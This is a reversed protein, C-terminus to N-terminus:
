PSFIDDPAVITLKDKNQLEQILTRVNEQSIIHQTWLLRLIVRLAFTTVGLRRAYALAQRDIAAYFWGRAQCIIITELEGRGLTPMEVLRQQLTAMEEPRPYITECVSFIAEPFRHGHELPVFLEKYVEFTIGLDFGAFLRTLLELQEVKAFASALDTDLLVKM